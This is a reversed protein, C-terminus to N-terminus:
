RSRDVGRAAPQGVGLTSGADRAAAVCTDIKLKVLLAAGYSGKGIQKVVVYRDQPAAAGRRM